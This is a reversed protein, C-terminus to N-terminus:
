RAAQHPMPPGSGSACGHLCDAAHMCWPSCGLSHQRTLSVQAYADSAGQTTDFCLHGWSSVHDPYDEILVQEWPQLASINGQDCGEASGSYPKATTQLLPADVVIDIGGDSRLKRAVTIPSACSLLPAAVLLLAVATIM